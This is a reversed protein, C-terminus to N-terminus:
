RVKNAPHRPDLPWGDDDVDISYGDLEIYRKSSNHCAECLSQLKGIVFKNWDGKHPEVHDVICAVTVVGRALCFACLPHARLQLRRRRQWSAKGYFHSWATRAEGPRPM